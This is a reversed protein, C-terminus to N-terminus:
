GGGPIPASRRPSWRTRMPTEYLFTRSVGARHAVAPYSIPTKHRRLQAIADRVRQLKDEIAARRAANAAATRSARRAAMIQGSTM